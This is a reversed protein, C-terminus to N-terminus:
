NLNGSDRIGEPHAESPKEEAPGSGGPTSGVGAEKQLQLIRANLEEDSVHEFKIVQKSLGKLELLLRAGQPDGGKQVRKIVAEIVSPLAMNLQRGWIDEWAKQFIPSEKLWRHFNREPVKAFRCLKRINKFGTQMAAEILRDQYVTLGNELIAIGGRGIRAIKKDTTNARVLHPPTPKPKKSKVILGVGGKAGNL